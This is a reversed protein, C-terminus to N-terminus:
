SLYLPKKEIVLRELLAVAYDLGPLSEIEDRPRQANRRYGQDQLVERQRKRSAEVRARIAASTEGQRHDSLKEYDVRPVEVHIVIRDLLPGSIMKQYRWITSSSSTREKM